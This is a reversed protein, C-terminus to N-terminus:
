LNIKAIGEPPLFIDYVYMSMCLYLSLFLTRLTTTLFFFIKAM